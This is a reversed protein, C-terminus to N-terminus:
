KKKVSQGSRKEINKLICRSEASNCRIWEVLTYQASSLKNVIKKDGGM